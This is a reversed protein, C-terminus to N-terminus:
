YPYISEGLLGDTNNLGVIPSVQRIGLLEMQAKALILTTLIQSEFGQSNSLAAYPAIESDTKGILLKIAANIGELDYYNLQRNTAYNSLFLILNAQAAGLAYIFGGNNELIQKANLFGRDENYGRKFQGDLLVGNVLYEKILSLSQDVQEQTLPNPSGKDDPNTRGLVNRLILQKCTFGAIEVGSINLDNDNDLSMIQMSGGGMDWVVTQTPNVKYRMQKFKLFIGEWALQGEEEQSAIRFDTGTSEIMSSLAEGAEGSSRLGATAVGRVEISKLHNPLPLDEAYSELAAWVAFKTDLDEPKLNMTSEQVRYNFISSLEGTQTNYDTVNLRFGSSGVDYLIYRIIDGEPNSPPLDGVTHNNFLQDPNSRAEALRSEISEDKAHEAWSLSSFGLLLSLSLAKVFAQKPSKQSTYIM